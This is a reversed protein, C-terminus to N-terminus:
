TAPRTLDCLAAATELGASAFQISVQQDPIGARNNSLDQFDDNKSMCAMHGIPWHPRLDYGLSTALLM